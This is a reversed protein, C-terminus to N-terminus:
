TRGTNPLLTHKVDRLLRLLFPQKKEMEKKNQLANDFDIFEADFGSLARLTERLAYAQLFSGNNVIRQMSLIGIKM